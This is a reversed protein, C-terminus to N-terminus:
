ARRVLTPVAFFLLLVPCCGCLALRGERGDRWYFSSLEMEMLEAEYRRFLELWPRSGTALTTVAEGRSRFM